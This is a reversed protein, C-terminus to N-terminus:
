AGWKVYLEGSKQTEMDGSDTVVVMKYIYEGLKLKETEEPLLEVKFGDDELLFEKEIVNDSEENEAVCFKLRSGQSFGETSSVSIFFTDGATYAIKEGGLYINIM